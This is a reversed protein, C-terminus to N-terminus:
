HQCYRYTGAVSSYWFRRQNRKASFLIANRSFQWSKGSIPAWDIILLIKMADETWIANYLLLLTLFTATEEEL